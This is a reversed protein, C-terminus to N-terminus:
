SISAFSNLKYNTNKLLLIISVLKNSLSLKNIQASYFKTQLCIISILCCLKLKNYTALKVTYSTRVLENYIQLTTKM